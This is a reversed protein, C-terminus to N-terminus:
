KKKFDSTNKMHERLEHDTKLTKDCKMCGLDISSKEQHPLLDGGENEDEYVEKWGDENPKALKVEELSIKEDLSILEGLVKIQEERVTIQGQQEAITRAAEQYNSEVAEKEKRIEKVAEREHNLNETLDTVKLKLVIVEESLSENRKSLEKKEEEVTTITALKRKLDTVEEILSDNKQKLEAKEADYSINKFALDVM